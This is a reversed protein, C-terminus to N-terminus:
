GLEEVFKGKQGRQVTDGTSYENLSGKSQRQNIANEVSKEESEQEGGELQM